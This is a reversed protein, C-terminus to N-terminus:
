VPIRTQSWSLPYVRQCSRATMRTYCPSQAALRRRIAKETSSICESFSSLGELSTSPQQQLPWSTWGCKRIDRAATATFSSHEPAVSSCITTRPRRPGCAGDIWAEGTQAAVNSKSLMPSRQHTPCADSCDAWLSASRDSDGCNMHDTRSTFGGTYILNSANSRKNGSKVTQVSWTVEAENQSTGRALRFSGVQAIPYFAPM